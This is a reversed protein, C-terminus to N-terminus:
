YRQMLPLARGQMLPLARGEDVAAWWGGRADWDAPVSGRAMRTGAHGLGKARSGRM